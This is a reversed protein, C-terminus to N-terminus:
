VNKSGDIDVAPDKTKDKGDSDGEAIENVGVPQQRRERPRYQPPRPDGLQFSRLREATSLVGGPATGFYGLRAM